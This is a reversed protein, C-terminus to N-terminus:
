IRTDNIEGKILDSLFIDDKKFSNKTEKFFKLRALDNRQKRKPYYINSIAEENDLYKIQNFAKKSILVIQEGLNGYKLAKSLQRISITNNLFNEALTFYSDDARYGIIVDYDKTNISYNDILYQKGMKSIDNKLNFVRNQLLITIWHLCNYEKSSLNLINLNNLDLEYKNAYGDKNLSVAWEKALEEDQTCYFGM